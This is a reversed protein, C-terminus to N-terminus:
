AAGTEGRDDQAGPFLRDMAVAGDDIVPRIQKRYVLETVATSSHGVLRSIQELPVGSDSLLSVFSHRLERPTWQVGPLGAAKIVRRFDRRVNNVDQPTGFMTPFVLGHDRWLKGAAERAIEQLRRHAKLADVARQPLALARRSKKTKTDGSARVSRLVQINPPVAPSADLAGVTDVDNWTLARLEETRAGTLLAVVVYGRMPSKEAAKMVAEAQALTLSKSPRGKGKGTPCDCLLVVNRKVRDRALARTIARRLISRLNRLTSTVMTQAKAALWRDVDEASLDVLKRAGLDPLIHHIVLSRVTRVTNPDRGILEYNAMWDNVADGVTYTASAKAALGDDLNRVMEKLKDNAAKRTRASAKRTIRKGAPTYGVTIEAIYRERTKDWRLSGDGRSRRKTM